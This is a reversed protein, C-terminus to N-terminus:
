ESEGCLVLDDSYLLDPLRRERGDELFSVGRWGMEMKVEIVGDMYVNFLWPSMIGGQRVGSDIRFQESACGKVRICGSSDIYRSKIGSLFKCGVDYMRFVGRLKGTLRIM